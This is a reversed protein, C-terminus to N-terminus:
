CAPSCWYAVPQLTCHPSTPLHPHGEEAEGSPAMAGACSRADPPAGLWTFPKDGSQEPTGERCCTRQCEPRAVFFLIRMEGEIRERYDVPRLIYKEM